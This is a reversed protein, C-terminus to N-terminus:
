EPVLQEKITKKVADLVKKVIGHQEGHITCGAARPHGGGGFIKAIRSVDITKSRFAVKTEGNNDTHYFFIGAEVDEINKVYNVFGDLEEPKAQHKQLMDDRVKMWAIRGEQEFTLTALADRLLKIAPVSVEDFIKQSVLSPNIGQELLKAAIYMAQPSTNEYKFSGTDSSIGVYLCLSIEPDINISNENLLRYLIEATASASADVINYDGFCDNTIHHDINVITGSLNLVTEKMYGLRDLDSCDLIFILNERNNPNLHDRFNYVGPLFSYKAPIVDACFLEVSKGKQKLAKELALASGIADGDPRIHILIISHQYRELLSGLNFNNM